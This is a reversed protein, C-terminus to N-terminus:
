SETTQLYGNSWGNYKDYFEQAPLDRNASTNRMSQAIGTAIVNGVLVEITGLEEQTDANVITIM